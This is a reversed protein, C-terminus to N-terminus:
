LPIDRTLGARLEILATGSVTGVRLAVDASVRPSIRWIVGGLFSATVGPITHAAEVRLCGVGCLSTEGRTAQPTRTCSFAAPPPSTPWSTWGAM